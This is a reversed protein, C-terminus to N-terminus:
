KDATYEQNQKIKKMSNRVITNSQLSQKHEIYCYCDGSTLGNEKRQHLLLMKVDIIKTVSSCSHWPRPRDGRVDRRKEWFVRWLFFLYLWSSCMKVVVGRQFCCLFLSVDVIRRQVASYEISKRSIHVAIAVGNRDSVYRANCWRMLIKVYWRTADYM